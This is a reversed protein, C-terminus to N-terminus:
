LYKNKLGSAFRFNTQHFGILCKNLFRKLNSILECTLGSEYWSFNKIQGVCSLNINRACYPVNM